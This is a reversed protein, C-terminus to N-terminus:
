MTMIKRSINAQVGIAFIQSGNIVSPLHKFEGSCYKIEALKLAARSKTISTHVCLTIQLKCIGVNLFSCSPTRKKAPKIHTLQDRVELSSVTLVARANKTAQSHM